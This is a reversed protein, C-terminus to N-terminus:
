LPFYLYFTTGTGLTSEVEIKGKHYEMIEKAIALGLGTGGMERSRAKDVRYFREFIRPLDFEPIGMGSDKIEIVVYDDHQYCAIEIVATEQSYKLANSLINKFVQEIRYLDGVIWFPMENPHYILKQNKKKIQIDFKKLSDELLQNLNLKQTKLYIQKNDLKSLDLLDQVLDTMRDAEHNIVQLFSMATETESLAGDILTETYSKITTLPTRLEHSVNAVFDKQMEELKKHETIDQIVCIIGMLTQHPSFFKAFCLNYYRDQVRIINQVTKKMSQEYIASFREGTYKSFVDQYTTQSTIGLMDASAQNYNTMFGSRDFVLIGDTMYSFVIELKSKEGSILDLTDKLSAAMTNFNQTLDGIEDDSIQDIELDLNGAAMKRAQESLISIPKTLFNSFIIGLIGATIIAFFLALVIIGITDRRTEEMSKTSALVYVVYEVEGEFSVPEAYGLFGEGNIRLEDLEDTKTGYLAGIVQPKTFGELTTQNTPYIVKGTNDLLYLKYNFLEGSTNKIFVKLVEGIDESSGKTGLGQPMFTAIRVIDREISEYQKQYTLSVILSGVMIMVLIVLIVYITALRWKISKFM